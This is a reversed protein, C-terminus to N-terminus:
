GKSLPIRTSVNMEISLEDLSCSGNTVLAAGIVEVSSVFQDVYESKVISSYNGVVMLHALM